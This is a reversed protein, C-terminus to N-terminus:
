YGFLFGYFILHRVEEAIMLSNIKELDSPILPQLKCCPPTIFLGSCVSAHFLPVHRVSM